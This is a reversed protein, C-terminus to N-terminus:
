NFFYYSLLILFSLQCFRLLFYSSRTSGMPFNFKSQWDRRAKDVENTNKPFKIWNQSETCIKLAVETVTRSVTSQHVGTDEGICVQFGPDGIYRLFVEMKEKRSLGGGRTENVNDLFTDALYNVHLKEFRFLARYERTHNRRNQFVKRARIQM